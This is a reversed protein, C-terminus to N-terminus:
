KQGASLYAGGQNQRFRERPVNLKGRVSQAKKLQAPTWRKNAALEEWSKAPPIGDSVTEAAVTEKFFRAFLEFGADMASASSETSATGTATSSKFTKLVALQEAAIPWAAKVRLDKWLAAAWTEVAIPGGKAKHEM